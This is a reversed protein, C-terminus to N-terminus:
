LLPGECVFSNQVTCDNDYWLDNSGEIYVCDETGRPGSPQGPAFNMFAFNTQDTWVYPGVTTPDLLGIWTNTSMKGVAASILSLVFTYESANSISVLHAEDVLDTCELEAADFTDPGAEYKYCKSEYQDWGSPCIGFVGTIGCLLFFVGHTFAM